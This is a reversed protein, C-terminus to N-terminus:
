IAGNTIIVNRGLWVDNGIVVKKNFDKVTYRPENLEASINNSYMFSHNTVMGKQHNYVILTGLAFSCFAGIREYRQSQEILPGYSLKGVKESGYERVFLDFMDIIKERGVMAQLDWLLQTNRSTFLIKVDDNKHEEIFSIDHIKNNIKSLKNDVIGVEEIGYRVNLINKAYVGDEGLLYIIIRDNGSSIAEDIKKCLKSYSIMIM